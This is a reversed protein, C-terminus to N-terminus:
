CMELLNNTNMKLLFSKQVAKKDRGHFIGNLHSTSVLPLWARKRGIGGTGPSSELLGQQWGLGPLAYTRSAIGAVRQNPM